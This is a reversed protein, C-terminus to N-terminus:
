EDLGYQKATAAAKDPHGSVLAALRSHTTKTLAPLLQNQSLRGIGVIAWGLKRDAPQAGPPPDPAALLNGALQSSISAAMLGQGATTLFRRRSPYAPDNM